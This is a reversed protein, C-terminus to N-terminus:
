LTGGTDCMKVLDFPDEIWHDPGAERIPDPEMMTWGVIATDVGAARAAILDHISDGVFLFSEPEPQQRCGSIATIRRVAELVPDPFPKHRITDERVIIVDFHDTLGFQEITQFASEHRKSTVLGTYIGKKRIEAVAKVIGYFIGAGSRLHSKNYAFYEALARSRLDSSLPEFARELPEGITSLLFREDAAKGTLKIYVYRFTEMILPITDAITGDFDFLVYKYPM